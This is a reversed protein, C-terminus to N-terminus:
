HNTTIIKSGIFLVRNRSVTNQYIKHFIKTFENEFWDTTYWSPVSPSTISDGDWLGMPMFEVIVYKNSLNSLTELIVKLNMNQTLILHHTLALAVVADCRIRSAVDQRGGIAQLRMFDLLLCMLGPTLKYRDYMQDVASRDYDAAIVLDLKLRDKICKAIVGQNAGIDLLTSIKCNRSIADIIANIRPEDTPIDADHYAAWKTNERPKRRSIRTRLIYIQLKALPWALFNVLYKAIRRYQMQSVGRNSIQFIWFLPNLLTFIFKRSTSYILGGSIIYAEKPNTSKTARLLAYATDALGKSILSIPLWFTSFFIQYGTWISYKNRMKKFSGFDVYIPRNGSFIMNEPHPDIIEYGYKEAIKNIDLVAIAADKVMNPSWEFAYNWHKLSECEIILDCESINDDCVWTKPFLGRQCLEDLLGSKM